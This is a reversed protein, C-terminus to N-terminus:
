EHSTESKISVAVRYLEAVKGNEVIRKVVGESIEQGPLIIPQNKNDYVAASVSYGTLDRMISSVESDMTPYKAAEAQDQITHWANKVERGVKETFAGVEQSLEEKDIQKMRESIMRGAETLSEGLRKALLMSMKKVDDNEAADGETIYTGYQKKNLLADPANFVIAASGIKEVAAVDLGLKNGDKTLYLESLAGSAADWSFDVVRGLLKGENDLCSLGLLTKEEAPLFSELKSVVVAQQDLDTVAKYDCYAKQNMALAVVSLPSGEVVVGEVKGSFDGTELNLVEKGVFESALLTQKIM